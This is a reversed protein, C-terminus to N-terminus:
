IDIDKKYTMLDLQFKYTFSEYLLDFSLGVLKNDNPNYQPYSIFKDLLSRVEYNNIDPDGLKNILYEKLDILTKGEKM